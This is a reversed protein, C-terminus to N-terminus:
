RRAWRQPQVAGGGHLAVVLSLHDGAPREPDSASTACPSYGDASGIGLIADIVPDDLFTTSGYFAAAEPLEQARAPDRAFDRLIRVSNGIRAIKGEEYVALIEASPLPRGTLVQDTLAVIEQYDSAIRQYIERNTFPTYIGDAQSADPAPNDITPSQASVGPSLGVAGLIVLMTATLVKIPRTSRRAM